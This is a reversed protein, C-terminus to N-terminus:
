QRHGLPRNHEDDQNGGYMERANFSASFRLSDRTVALIFQAFHTWYNPSSPNVDERGPARGIAQDALLAVTQEAV